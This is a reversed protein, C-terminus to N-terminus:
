NKKAPKLKSEEILEVDCGMLVKAMWVGKDLDMERCLYKGEGSDYTIEPGTPTAIDNYSKFTKYSYEEVVMQDKKFKPKIKELELTTVRDTLIKLKEKLNDEEIEDFKICHKAVISHNADIRKKLCLVFNLSPRKESEDKPPLSRYYGIAGFVSCVSILIGLIILTTM